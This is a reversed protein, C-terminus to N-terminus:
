TKSGSTQVYKTHHIEAYIEKWPRGAAVAEALRKEAEQTTAIGARVQEIVSEPVVCVGDDDAVIVDGPSVSTGGVEITTNYGVCEFMRVYSIPSRGASFVPLGQEKLGLVDRCQGDFIIAEMGQRVAQANAREGWFPGKGGIILIDGPQGQEVVETHMFPADQYARAGTAPVFQMTIAPGAVHRGSTFPVVPFVGNIIHNFIGLKKLTDSVFATPVHRFLDITEKSPRKQLKRSAYDRQIM